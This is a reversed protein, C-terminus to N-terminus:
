VFDQLESVPPQDPLAPYLAFVLLGGYIASAHGSKKGGLDPLDALYAEYNEVTRHWVEEAQETGYRGALWKRVPKKYPNQDIPIHNM